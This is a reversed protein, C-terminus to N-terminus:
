LYDNLVFTRLLYIMGILVLLTILWYAIIIAKGVPNGPRRIENIERGLRAFFDRFWLYGVILIFIVIRLEWLLPYSSM